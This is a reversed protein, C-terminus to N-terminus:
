LIESGGQMAANAQEALEAFPDLGLRHHDWQQVRIIGRLSNTLWISSAGQLDEYHATANRVSHGHTALFQILFQSAIGPLCGEMVSPTYCYGDKWFFLNSRSSEIFQGHPNILLADEWGKTTAYQSAMVYPMASLSKFWPIVPPCQVIPSPGLRFWEIPKIDLASVAIEWEPNSTTPFYDGEESGSRWIITRVKATKPKGLNNWKKQIIELWSSYSQLDDRPIDATFAEITSSPPVGLPIPWDIGVTLAARRM